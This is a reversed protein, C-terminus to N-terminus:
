YIKELEIILWYLFNMMTITIIKQIDAKFNFKKVKKIGDICLGAYVLGVHKEETGGGPGAIVTTSIGIRTGANKAIC